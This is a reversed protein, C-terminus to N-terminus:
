LETVLTEAKHCYLPASRDRWFCPGEKLVLGCSVPPKPTLAHKLGPNIM